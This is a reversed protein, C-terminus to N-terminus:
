RYVYNDIDGLAYQGKIKLFAFDLHKQKGSNAGMDPLLTLVNWVGESEEEQTFRKITYKTGKPLYKRIAICAQRVIERDEEKSFDVLSKWARDPEKRGRYVIFPAAKSCNSEADCAWCSQLLDNLVLVVKASDSEPQNSSANTAIKKTDCGIIFILPFLLIGIIRAM